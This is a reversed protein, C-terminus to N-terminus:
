AVYQWLYGGASKLRTNGKATKTICSRQIGTVRAAEAGSIFQNIVEGSMSLQLVSKCKTNAQRINIKSEESRIKGTNGKAQKARTALSIVRSKREKSMEQIQEKTRIKGTNAGSIKAKTEESHRKSNGGSNLNLGNPSLSNYMVIFAEELENLIEKAHKTTKTQALIEVTHAEYGYKVM